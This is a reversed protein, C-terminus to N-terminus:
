LRREMVVTSERPSDYYGPTTRIIKFGFKQNLTIMVKNSKRTNTVIRSFGHHRAYSLQWSKMLTGFGMTRFQPLIGTTAIYLSGRRHPNDKDPHIDEKFDIHREFACCGIKRKGGIMWWSETAQWTAQDFWDAPYKQFAKHDFIILSRIEKPIEARRFETHM